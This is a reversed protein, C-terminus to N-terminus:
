PIFHARAKGFALMRMSFKSKEAPEMEAFTKDSGTPQFVADWGFGKNGRPAVFSGEIKGEFFYLADGDAVGLHCLAIAKQKKGKKFLSYTGTTGLEKIVWKILPGPLRGFDPLVLSVDDVCCRELCIRHAVELKAQIIKLPDLEQIEPLDLSKFILGPYLQNAEAFKEHSSTIFIM